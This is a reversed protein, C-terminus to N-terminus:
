ASLLNRPFYAHTTLSFHPADCVVRHAGARGLKRRVEQAERHSGSRVEDSISPHDGTFAPAITRRGASRLRPTRRLHVLTGVSRIAHSRNSSSEAAERPHPAASVPQPSLSPLDGTPIGPVHNGPSPSPGRAFVPDRSPRKRQFRVAATVWGMQSRKPSGINLKKSTDVSITLVINPACLRETGFTEDPDLTALNLAREVRDNDVSIQIVEILTSTTLRAKKIVTIVVGAHRQM